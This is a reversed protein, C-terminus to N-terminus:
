KNFDATAVWERLTFRLPAPILARIKSDDFVTDGSEIATERVPWPTQLVRVGFREAIWGAVQRLSFTEGAINYTQASTQSLDACAEIQSCIDQAHSFTRRLSGDGFLTIAKKERAMRIFAGITGYSYPGKWRNGYPVCI